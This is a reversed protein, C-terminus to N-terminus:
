LRRVRDGDKAYLRGKNDTMTGDGNDRLPVRSTGELVGGDDGNSPDLMPEYDNDPAAGGGGALGAASAGVGGAGSIFGGIAFSVGAFLFALVIALWIAVVAIAIVAVLALISWVAFAIIATATKRGIEDSKRKVFIWCYAVSLALGFLMSLAWVVMEKSGVKTTLSGSFLLCPGFLLVVPVIGQLQTKSFLGYPTVRRGAYRNFPRYAWERKFLLLILYIVMLLWGVKILLGVIMAPIGKVYSQVSDKNYLSPASKVIEDVAADEQADYGDDYYAIERILGDKWTDGAFIWNGHSDVHSTRNHRLHDPLKKNNYTLKFEAIQYTTKTSTKVLNGDEDRKARVHYVSHSENEPVYVAFSYEGNEGFFGSAKPTGQRDFYVTMVNEGNEHKLTCKWPAVDFSMYGDKEDREVTVKDTEANFTFTKAVVQQHNTTLLIAVLMFVQQCTRPLIKMFLEKKAFITFPSRLPLRFYSNIKM